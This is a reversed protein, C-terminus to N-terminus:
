DVVLKEEVLRDVLEMMERVGELLNPFPYDAYVENFAELIETAAKNDKHFLKALAYTTDNESNKKVEDTNLRAIEEKNCKGILELLLLRNLLETRQGDIM